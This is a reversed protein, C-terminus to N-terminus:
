GASGRCVPEVDGGPTAAIDVGCQMKLLLATRLTLGEGRRTSFTCSM